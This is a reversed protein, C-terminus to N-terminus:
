KAAPAEGAAPAAAPATAPAAPAAAAPAPASPKYNANLEKLVDETIDLSSDVYVTLGKSFVIQLGKAKAIKEAQTRIDAGIQKNMEGIRQQITANASNVFQQFENYREQFTKNKVQAESMLSKKGAESLIPDQARKVTSDLDAKLQEVEKGRETVAAQSVEASKKIDAQIELAKTYKKMVESEDVIGVNPAAAFVSATVFALSLFISKM